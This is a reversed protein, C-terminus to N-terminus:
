KNATVKKNNADLDIEPLGWKNELVFAKPGYGGARNVEV